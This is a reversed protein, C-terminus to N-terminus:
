HHVFEWIEESLSSTGDSTVPLRGLVGVIYGFDDIKLWVPGCGAYADLQRKLGLTEREFWFQTYDTNVLVLSPDAKCLEISHIKIRVNYHGLQKPMLQLEGPTMPAVGSRSFVFSEALLALCVGALILCCILGFWSSRNDDQSSLRDDSM